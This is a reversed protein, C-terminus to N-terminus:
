NRSPPQTKSACMLLEPGVCGVSRGEDRNNAGEMTAASREFFQSRTAVQSICCWPARVLRGLAAM